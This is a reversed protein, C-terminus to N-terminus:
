TDETPLMSADIRVGYNYLQQAFAQDSNVIGHARFDVVAAQGLESLWAELTKVTTKEDTIPVRELFAIQRQLDSLEEELGEPSEAQKVLERELM